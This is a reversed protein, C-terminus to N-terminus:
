PKAKEGRGVSSRLIFNEVDQRRFRILTRRSGRWLRVHPLVGRSAQDYVTSIAVGLWDAVDRAALLRDSNETINM